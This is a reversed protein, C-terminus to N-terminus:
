SPTSFVRKAYAKKILGYSDTKKHCPICLTRGNSMDFRLEPYKAFTKIHDAHMYKGKYGCLQCTYNDREKIALAWKQYKYSHRINKHEYSIGGQWNPHDKGPKWHQPLKLEPRKKGLWYGQRKSNAVGLCKRSCYISDKNWRQVEYYKNCTLCKKKLKAGFCKMSCFRVHARKERSLKVAFSANCIECIIIIMALYVM